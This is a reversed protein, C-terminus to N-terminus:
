TKRRRERIAALQETPSMGDPSTGPVGAIAQERLGSVRIQFFEDLSQSCIAIFKLRALIPREPDEALTLVRENFDLWSLERNLYQNAPDDAPAPLPEMLVGISGPM